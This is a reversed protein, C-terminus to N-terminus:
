TTTPRPEDRGLGVDRARIIAQARDAVQLKTFISSVNNAVTKAALGLRHGIAANSLGAALLDLIKREGATLEPFHERNATPRPRSFFPEESMDTPPQSVM